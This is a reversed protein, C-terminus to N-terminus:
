KRRAANKSPVSVLQKFTLDHELYDKSFVWVDTSQPSAALFLRMGALPGALAECLENRTVGIPTKWVASSAVHPFLTCDIKTGVETLGFRVAQPNSASYDVHYTKLVGDQLDAPFEYACHVGNVNDRLTCDKHKWLAEARDRSGGVFEVFAVVEAPPEHM